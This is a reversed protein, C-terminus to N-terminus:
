WSDTARYKWYIYIHLSQSNHPEKKSVVLTQFNNNITCIDGMSVVGKRSTIVMRQLYHYSYYFHFGFHPLKWCEACYKGHGSYDGRNPFYGHAKLASNVVMAAHIEDVRVVSNLWFGPPLGPQAVLLLRCPALLMHTMQSQHRELDPAPEPIRAPLSWSFLWSRVDVAVAQHFHSLTSIDDDIWTGKTSNGIICPFIVKRCINLIDMISKRKCLTNSQLPYPWTPVVPCAWNIFDWTLVCWYRSFHRIVCNNLPLLCNTFHQKKVLKM